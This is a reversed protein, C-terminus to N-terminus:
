RGFWDGGAGCAAADNSVFVNSGPANEQMLSKDIEYPCTEVLRDLNIRTMDALWREHEQRGQDITQVFAPSVGISAAFDEWKFPCDISDMAFFAFPRGYAYSVIAGHLSNTLIFEASCLQDIWSEVADFSPDIAPSLLRDHGIQSADYDAHMAQIHPVLVVKGAFDPDLKPKYVYPLLLAADGVFLSDDGLASASRPGRVGHITVDRHKVLEGVERSRLGCSWFHIRKRHNLADRIFADDIVSGIVYVHSRTLDIRPQEFLRDHLYSALFDGLNAQRSGQFGYKLVAGREIVNAQALWSKIRQRM